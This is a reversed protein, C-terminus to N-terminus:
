EHGRGVSRVETLELGLSAGRDIVGLLAAQDHLEARLLAVGHGVSIEFDGFMALTLVVCTPPRSETM